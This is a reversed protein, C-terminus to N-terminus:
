ILEIMFDPDLGDPRDPWVWKQGAVSDTVAVSKIEKGTGQNLAFLGFPVDGNDYKVNLLSVSSLSAAAVVSNEFFTDTSGKIGAIKVSKIAALANEFDDGVTPIGSLSDRMGALFSSGTTAGLSLAGITGATSVTADVARGAVRLQGLSTGKTDQGTLTVAAGFNGTIAPKLRNGKTTLTKASVATLSGGDWQAATVSGVSGNNATIVSDTITGAVQLKSMAVGSKADASSLTVDAGFDGTIALNKRDGTTTISNVRTATLSGAEWQTCSIAGIAGAAASIVSGDIVGVQLKSLAVGTKPNAGSLTIDAGFTAPINLKKNGSVQITGVWPAILVSDVWQVVSLKSLYSGLTIDTGAALTGAQISIGKAANAGLMILDAGDSINGLQISGIYFETTGEEPAIGAGGLNTTKASLRGLPTKGDLGDLTTM